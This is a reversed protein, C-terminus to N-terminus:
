RAATSGTPVRPAHSRASVSTKENQQVPGLAALAGQGPRAVQGPSGAARNVEEHDLRGRAHQAHAAPRHGEDILELVGRPGGRAHIEGRHRGAQSLVPHRHPGVNADACRGRHGARDDLLQVRVDEDQGVAHSSILVEALM